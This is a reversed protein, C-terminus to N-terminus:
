HKVRSINILVKGNPNKDWYDKLLKYLRKYAFTSGNGTFTDKQTSYDCGSNILLCGSSDKHTNGIHILIHTFNPVNQIQISFEHGFRKKYSEYHGGHKRATVQYTGSPIRTVHKIKQPKFGDEIIFGLFTGNNTSLASLTSDDSESIINCNLLLQM